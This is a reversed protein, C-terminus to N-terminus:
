AKWDLSQEVFYDTGNWRLLLLDVGSSTFASLPTGGKKRFVPTGSTYAFTITRLGGNTMEIHYVGPATPATLTITLAGSGTFTVKQYQGNNLDLTFSASKSGIDYDGELGLTKVGSIKNNNMDIDAEASVKAYDTATATAMTGLGLATRQGAQDTAALLTRAAAAFDALAASGSGTFYALKNAASTLGALATLEDDLPQKGALAATITAAFNADDGLAAALEDLTDLAGPASNLLTAIASQVFATTALQTTNTASAATPATPTGTLAPSALPAGGMAALQTAHDAAALLALGAVTPTTGALKDSDEAADVKGDNDADYTSKLMDGSGSGSPGVLSTASGWAGSSKPGYIDWATTDIYFDGDAGIGSGPAGAGSLVTRGDAGAAGDSGDSGAAGPDGQPGEPGEPGILESVPAKKNVGGQVIEILETGALPTTAAALDTIKKNAM